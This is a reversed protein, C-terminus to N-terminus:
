KSTYKIVIMNDNHKEIVSTKCENNADLTNIRINYPGSGTFKNCNTQGSSIEYIENVGTNSEYMNYFNDSYNSHELSCLTNDFMIGLYSIKKGAPRQKNAPASTITATVSNTPQSMLFIVLVIMLLM